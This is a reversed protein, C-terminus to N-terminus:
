FLDATVRLKPAAPPQSTGEAPPEAGEEVETVETPPAAFSLSRSSAKAVKRSENVINAPVLSVLTDIAALAATLNAQLAQTQQESLEGARKAAFIASALTDVNLFYSALSEQAIKEQNSGSGGQEAAYRSVARMNDRM